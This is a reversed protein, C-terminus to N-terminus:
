PPRWRTRCSARWGSRARPWRRGTRRWASRTSRRLRRRPRGHARPGGRRRRRGRRRRHRRDRAPAGDRPARAGPGARDGPVCGPPRRHPRGDARDPRPGGRRRDRRRAGRRVRRGAVRDAARRVPVPLARGPRRRRAGRGSRVPGAARAPVRAQGGPVQGYLKSFGFLSAGTGQDRVQTTECQAFLGRSCMWCTGARSTSRSSWGTAWPSRAPRPASRRSSVWRRTGWCTGRTWTCGWCARVPAPRLRLDRDVHGPRDRGDAARDAPGAGDGREREGPGAM